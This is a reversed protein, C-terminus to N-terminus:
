VTDDLVTIEAKKHAAKNIGGSQFICQPIYGKQM